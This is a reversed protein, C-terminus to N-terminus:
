PRTAIALTRVIPCAPRSAPMGLDNKTTPVFRVLGILRCSTRKQSLASMCRLSAYLSVEHQPQQCSAVLISDGLPSKPTFDSQNFRDGSTYDEPSQLSHCRCVAGNEDDM